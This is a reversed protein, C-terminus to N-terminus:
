LTHPLPTVLDKPTRPLYGCLGGMVYITFKLRLVRVRV